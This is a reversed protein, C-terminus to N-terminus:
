AIYIDGLINMLEFFAYFYSMASKFFKDGLM